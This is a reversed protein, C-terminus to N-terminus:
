LNLRNDFVINTKFQRESFKIFEEFKIDSCAKSPSGARKARTNPQDVNAKKTANM